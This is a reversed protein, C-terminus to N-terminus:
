GLDSQGTLIYIQLYLVAARGKYYNMMASDAALMAQTGQIGESAADQKFGAEIDGLSASWEEQSQVLKEQEAPVDELLTNLKNYANDVEAKWLEAYKITVSRMDSENEAERIEQQFQADINNKAFLENFEENDTFEVATHYDEVIQEDDFYYGDYMEPISASQSGEGSRDTSQESNDNVTKSSEEKDSSESGESSETKSEQDSSQEPAGSQAESSVSVSSENAIDRSAASSEERSSRDSSVSSETKSVTSSTKSAGSCATTMVLFSALVSVIISNIIRKKM